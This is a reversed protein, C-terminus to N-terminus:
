LFLSSSVVDRNPCYRWISQKSAQNISKIFISILNSTRHLNREIKDVRERVSILWKVAVVILIVQLYSFMFCTMKWYTAFLWLQKISIFICTINSTKHQVRWIKKKYINIDESGRLNTRSRLIFVCFLFIKMRNM